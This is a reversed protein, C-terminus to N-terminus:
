LCGMPTRHMQSVSHLIYSAYLLIYLGIYSKLANRDLMAYSAGTLAELRPAM